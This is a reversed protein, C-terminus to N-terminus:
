MRYKQEENKNEKFYEDLIKKHDFVMNDPIDAYKFLKVEEADSQASLNGKGEAVFVTSVTHYRPDRSPHSYTHFQQLNSIKLGTEEEAERVAAKELSEGYEVFGGPIAWGYPPNKRKILVICDNVKIIIDITPLPNRYIKKKIYEIHRSFTEKFIETANKDEISLSIEMLGTNERLFGLIEEAFIKAIKGFDNNKKFDDTNTVVFSVRKKENKDASFLDSKIKERFKAYSIIKNYTLGGEKGPKIKINTNKIKKIYM